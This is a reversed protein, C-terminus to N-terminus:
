IPLRTNPTNRFFELGEPTNLWEEAKRSQNTTKIIGKDQLYAVNVYKSFVEKNGDYEWCEFIRLAKKGSGFRAIAKIQITTGTEISWGCKCSRKFINGNIELTGEGDGVLENGCNQCKAYKKMLLLSDHINM